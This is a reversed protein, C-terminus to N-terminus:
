ALGLNLELNLTRLLFPSSSPFRSPAALSTRLPIYLFPRALPRTLGDLRLSACALSLLAVCPELSPCQVTVAGGHQCQRRRSRRGGAREFQVKDAGLAPVILGPSAHSNPIMSQSADGTQNSAEDNGDTRGDTAWAM